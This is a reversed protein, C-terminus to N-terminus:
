CTPAYGGSPTAGCCGPYDRHYSCSFSCCEYCDVSLTGDCCSWVWWRYTHGVFCKTETSNCDRPFGLNCCHVRRNTTYNCHTHYAEVAEPAGGVLVLV